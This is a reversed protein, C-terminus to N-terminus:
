YYRRWGPVGRPIIEPVEAVLVEWMVADCNKYVIAGIMQAREAGLGWVLSKIYKSRQPLLPLNELIYPMIVAWNKTPTVDWVRQVLAKQVALPIYKRGIPNLNAEEGALHERFHAVFPPVVQKFEDLLAKATENSIINDEGGVFALLSDIKTQIDSLFVRDKEHDELYESAHEPFYREFEKFVVEDEHAAHEHHLTSFKSFEVAFELVADGATAKTLDLGAVCRELKPIAGRIGEHTLKMFSLPGWKIEPTFVGRRRILAVMTHLLTVCNCAAAVAMTAFMLVEATTFGTLAYYVTAAAAVVDFSFGMTWYSMNFKARGFFNIHPLFAWLLGLELMISIWFLQSFDNLCQTGSRETCSILGALAGVAPPAIWIFIQNRLRDDSNHTTAVKFFSITFIVIWMLFAFSYYFNALEVNADVNAMYNGDVVIAEIIPAVLASVFGGVPLILWSPHVHELEYRKGVWEAFKAVTLLQHTVSGIWFVGRGFDPEDFQDYVLFSLLMSTITIAGFSPSRMPCHWEKRCKKHHLILRAMYLLLMILYIVGGITAFTRWVNNDVNYSKVTQTVLASDKNLFSDLWPSALKFAVALGSISLPMAFYTVQMNKVFDFDSLIYEDTKVRKYKLDAKDTTINFENPPQPKPDMKNVYNWGGIVKDKTNAYITYVSPPILNFRIGWSFFLCGLCFDLFCEMSAAGLLGGIIVSSAIYNGNHFLIMSPLTFCIGCFAAFQKPPGPKFKPTFPSVFLTAVMGIPSASSGFAFRLLYDVFLFMSYWHAWAEERFAILLCCSIVVLFGIMRIVHNNVVNPFWLLPQRAEGRPKKAGKITALRKAAQEDEVRQFVLHSILSDLKGNNQLKKVDDCGGVHKTEIYVSPVTSQHTLKKLTKQIEPGDKTQNVELVHVPVNLVAFTKKVEICFPCHSKSFIVVPHERTMQMIKSGFDAGEYRSLDKVMTVKSYTASSTVQRVNVQEPESPRGVNETVAVITPTIGASSMSKTYSNTREVDDINTEQSQETM